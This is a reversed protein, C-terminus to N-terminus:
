LAQALIAMVPMLVMINSSSSLIIEDLEDQVPAGRETIAGSLLSIAFAAGCIAFALPFTIAPRLFWPPREGTEGEFLGFFYFSQAKKIIGEIFGLEEEVPKNAQRLAYAAAIDKATRPTGDTEALADFDINASAPTADLVTVDITLKALPPVLNAVGIKGYAYEEPRDITFIANEGVMMSALGYDWGAIMSSDGLVMQQPRNAPTNRAILTRKTNNDDVVYAEYTVTIIDGLRIPREISGRTRIQKTIGEPLSARTTTTSRLMTTTTTKTNRAAVAALPRPASSSFARALQMLAAITLWLLLLVVVNPFSKNRRMM